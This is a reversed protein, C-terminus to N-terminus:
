RFTLFQHIVYVLFKEKKSFLFLSCIYSSILFGFIGALSLFFPINKQEASLFEGSIGGFHNASLFILNSFYDSGAGIFVESLLYGNFISCLSLLGLALSIATGNERVSNFIVKPASATNL